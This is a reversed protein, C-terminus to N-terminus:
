LRALDCCAAYIYLFVGFLAQMTDFDFGIHRLYWVGLSLIILNM